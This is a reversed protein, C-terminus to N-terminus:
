TTVRYHALKDGFFAHPLPFHENRQRMRRTPRLDVEAFGIDVQTADLRPNVVEAQVHRVRVGDEDFGVRCLRRLREQVSM